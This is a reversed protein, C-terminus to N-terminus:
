HVSFGGDTVLNSGTIWRSADSLLFICSYAVDEPVGLGLPHQSILEMRGEESLKNMFAQSMRTVCVAPSVCNARIKKSAFELALSRVGNILAAKSSSYGIKGAEAKIGAASAIFIMSGGAARIYKKKAIQKAFEFAAFVNVSFIKEFHAPTMMRVPLNMGMGASHVFGDIPGLKIVTEAVLAEISEYDSIDRILMLHGKGDLAEYTEELRVNDRGILSLKAGMRSCEIACSRGIGSSAGTIIINKGSLDFPNLNEAM